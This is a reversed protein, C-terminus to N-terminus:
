TRRGGRRLCGAAEFRIRRPITIEARHPLELARFQRGASAAVNLVDQALLQTREILDFPKM